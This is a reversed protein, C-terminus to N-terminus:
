MPFPREGAKVGNGLPGLAGRAESRSNMWSLERRRGGTGGRRGQPEWCLLSLWAKSGEAWVGLSPLLLQFHSTRVSFGEPGEDRVKAAPHPGWLPVVSRGARRLLFCLFLPGTVISPFPFAAGGRLTPSLASCEPTSGMGASKWPNPFLKSTDDGIFISKMLIKRLLEQTSGFVKWGCIFGSDAKAPSSM